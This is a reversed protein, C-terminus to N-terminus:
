SLPARVSPRSRPILPPSNGPLPRDAGHGRRGTVYPWGWPSAGVTAPGAATTVGSVTRGHTFIGWALLRHRDGGRRWRSADLIGWVSSMLLRVQVGGDDARRVSSPRTRIGASKLAAGSPASPRRMGSYWSLACCTSWSQISFWSMSIEKQQAMWKALQEALASSGKEERQEQQALYRRVDKARLSPRRQLRVARGTACAPRVAAEGEGRLEMRKHRNPCRANTTQKVSRRYVERDPCVLM